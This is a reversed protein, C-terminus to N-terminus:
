VDFFVTENVGSLRIDIRWDGPTSSDANAILTVRRSEPVLALVPCETNAPDGAFYVRTALRKLVGRAFVSVNLHPAQLSGDNAPVRGPKITEFVCIGDENTALRGYAACNPDTGDARPDAPHNYRGESDAQWIEIMADPVVANERDTVRCTLRVREGKADPGALCSVSHSETCGHHFFPGVTQSPTPTLSGMDNSM